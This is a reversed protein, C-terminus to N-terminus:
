YPPSNVTNRKTGCHRDQSDKVLQLDVHVQVRQQKALAHEVVGHGHNQGRLDGTQTSMVCSDPTQVKEWVAKFTDSNTQKKEDM